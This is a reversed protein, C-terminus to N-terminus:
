RYGEAASSGCSKGDATRRLPSGQAHRFSPEAPFHSPPSRKDRGSNTPDRCRRRPHV